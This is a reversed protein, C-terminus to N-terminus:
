PPPYDNLRQMQVTRAPENLMRMENTAFRWRRKHRHVWQGGDGGERGPSVAHTFGNKRAWKDAEELCAACDYWIDVMEEHKTCIGMNQEAEAQLAEIYLTKSGGM